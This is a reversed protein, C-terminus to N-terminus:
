DSLMVMPYSSRTRFMCLPHGDGYHPVLVIVHLSWRFPRVVSGAQVSCFSLRVELLLSDTSETINLGAFLVAFDRYDDALAGVLQSTGDIIM